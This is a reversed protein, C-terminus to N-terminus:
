ENIFAIWGLYSSRCIFNVKGISSSLFSLSAFFLVGVGFGILILAFSSFGITILGTGILGDKFVGLGGLVM